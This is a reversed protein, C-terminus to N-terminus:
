FFFVFCSVTYLFAGSAFIWSIFWRALHVTAVWYLAPFRKLTAGSVRLWFLCFLMNGECVSMVSSFSATLENPLNSSGFAEAVGQVFQRIQLLLRVFSLVGLFSLSSSQCLLYSAILYYLLFDLSVRRGGDQFFSDFSVFPVHISASSICLPMVDSFAAPLRLSPPM